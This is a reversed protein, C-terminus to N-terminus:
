LPSSQISGNKGKLHLDEDFLYLFLERLDTSCSKEINSFRKQSSYSEM